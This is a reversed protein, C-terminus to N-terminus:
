TFIRIYTFVKDKNDDTLAFVGTQRARHIQKELTNGM